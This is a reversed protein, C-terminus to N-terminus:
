SRLAALPQGGWLWLLDFAGGAARRPSSAAHCAALPFLVGQGGASAHPREPADLALRALATSRM